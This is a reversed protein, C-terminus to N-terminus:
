PENKESNKQAGYWGEWLSLKKQAITDKPDIAVAKRYNEDAAVYDGAAEEVAALCWLPAANGPMITGAIEFQEAAADLDEKRWYLNGLYLRPWGDTENAQIALLLESEAKDLQNRRLYAKGLNQHTESTAPGFLVTHELIKLNKDDKSMVQAFSEMDELEAASPRNHVPDAHDFHQSWLKKRWKESFEEAKRERAYRLRESKVKPNVLQIHGLEHLFTDYLMFRKVAVPPWQWGRIAGFTRPSQGRLLARSMSTRPPVACIAIERRGPTVYGLTRAGESRDNSIYPAYTRGYTMRFDPCFYM